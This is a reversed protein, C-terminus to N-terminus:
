SGIGEYLVEADGWGRGVLETPDVVSGDVANVWGIGTKTWTHDTSRAPLDPFHLVAGVRTPLDTAQATHTHIVRPRPDHVVQVKGLVTRRYGHIDVWAYGDHRFVEGGDPDYMTRPRYIIVGESPNVDFRSVSVTMGFPM